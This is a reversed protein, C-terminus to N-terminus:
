LEVNGAGAGNDVFLARTGSSFVDLRGNISSSAGTTGHVTLDGTLQLEGASGTQVDGGGNLTLDRIAEFHNNLDYLGTANVTVSGGVEVDDINRAIAPTGTSVGITFDHPIP